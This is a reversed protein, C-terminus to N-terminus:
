GDATSLPVFRLAELSPEWCEAGAEALRVLSSEEMMQIAVVVIGVGGAVGTIGGTSDSDETM